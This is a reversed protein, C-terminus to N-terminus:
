EDEEVEEDEDLDQLEDPDFALLEFRDLDETFALNDLADELFEIQDEDEAQDLLSELVIQVDEGGIQSLSWIAASTVDDDEDETLMRLLVPRASKLALNGASQAAARRIKENEHLLSRLIFDEWRDDASRGMATLASVKWEVGERQFASEILDVVEPSSSYGLSALAHRRVRAEDAGGASELLAAQVEGYAKETIEELEGLDVFLGLATAAEARVGADPDNKLLNLYIPVLKEDECVGRDLLRIAHLRVSAGPDNLIARAFDDFNVLTDAESLSELGELLSLKRSPSVRPWVDLLTKLEIAGIDSFLGLYRRPFDRGTALLADLVTQFSTTRTTM